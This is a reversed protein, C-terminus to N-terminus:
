ANQFYKTIGNFIGQAISSRYSDSNLKAAEAPNSVFGMEILISPMSPTRIVYFNGQLVGRDEAQTVQVVANQVMKALQTSKGSSFYTTAGSISPNENENSHISVFIDANNVEALDVRAQLEQRLSNGEPAVTRDSDRTMIVKAGAQRLKDRLNLGVALNNDAERSDNDVAGPNSGGHGPDVIIVRGQLVGDSGPNPPLASASETEPPTVTTAPAASGHFINLLPALFKGFLLNFLQGLLSGGGDSPASSAALTNVISGLDAAHTVPLPIFINFMMVLLLSYLLINKREV